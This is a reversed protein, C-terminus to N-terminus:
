REYKIPTYSNLEFYLDFEFLDDCYLEPEEKTSFLPIRNLYVKSKIPKAFIKVVSNKIVKEFSINSPHTRLGKRLKNTKCFIYIKGRTDDFRAYVSFCIYEKKTSSVIDRLKNLTMM